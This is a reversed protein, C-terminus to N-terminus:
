PLIGAACARGRTPPRDSGDARMPSGTIRRHVSSAASSRSFHPQDSFGAAHAADTLNSGDLVASIAARMRCWGRYRRYPVGVEQTFLHQFRSASLKAVAAASDARDFALHDQRLSRLVRRVRPDIAGARAEAFGALDELAESLWAASDSDEFSQRLVSVEGGQGVLAGQESRAPGVLRHMEGVTLRGPEAYLVALPSGGMDFEYPLGAPVVASRCRQWAGDGIRLSFREYLGALFVPVSHSHRANRGLAGAFLSLGESVHWVPQADAASTTARENM